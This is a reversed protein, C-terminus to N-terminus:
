LMSPRLAKLLKRFADVLYPMRVELPVRIHLTDPEPTHTEFGGLECLQRAPPEAFLHDHGRWWAWFDADAHADGFDKYLTAYIGKGGGACCQAYGRHRRLYEWWFYYVSCQWPEADRFPANPLMRKSLLEGQKNRRGKIPPAYVYFRKGSPKETEKNM